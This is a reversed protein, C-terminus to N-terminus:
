TRPTNTVFGSPLGWLCYVPLGRALIGNGDATGDSECIGLEEQSINVGCTVCARLMESIMNNTKKARSSITFEAMTAALMPLGQKEEADFYKEACNLAAQKLISETDVPVTHGSFLGLKHVDDAFKLDSKLANLM